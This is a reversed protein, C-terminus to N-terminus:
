WPGPRGQPPPPPQQPPYAAPRRESFWQRSEPRLLLVFAIVAPVQLLLGAPLALLGAVATVGASVLLLYRAWDHRRLTLWALVAASVAWLGLIVVLVWISAELMSRPVEGQQGGMVENVEAGLTDLQAYFQVVLLPLGLLLVVGSGVWTLIAAIRVSTPARTDPGPTSSWPGGPATPDPYAGYGPPPAYPQQGAQQQGAQQQGAQQEGYGQTPPPLVSTSATSVSPVPAPPPAHHEGQPTGSGSGSGTGSSRPDHRFPDPREADDGRQPREPAQRVPRGAFWDRAPGSWLLLAAAFVLVAMVTGTFFSTFFIPVTAVTLAIRAGQHKSLVFVGSVLTVAACVAAVSLGVQMATLTQDVGLGMGDAGGSTLTETVTERMEVSGIRGLTEFVSLLLFISGGIALGGAM